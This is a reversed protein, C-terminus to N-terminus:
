DTLKLYSRIVEFVENDPYYIEKFYKEAELFKIRAEKSNERYLIQGQFFCINGMVSKDRAFKKELESLAMLVPLYDVEREYYAQIVRNYVEPSSPNLMLINFVLQNQIPMKERIAIYLYDLLAEPNKPSLLLAKDIFLIATDTKHQLDYAYSVLRLADVKPSTEEYLNHSVMAYDIALSYNRLIYEVYALNYYAPPYKSNLSISKRLMRQAEDYKGQGILIYGLVFYTEFDASNNEICKRNVQELKSTLVDKSISMNDDYHLFYDYLYDAQAKYLFGKEPYLQIFSDLIVDANLAYLQYEGSRNRLESIKQGPSLNIFGFKEFQLHVVYFHIALNLKILFLELDKNKPDVKEILQYADLIRGALVLSDSKQLIFSKDVQASLSKLSCFIIFSVVILRKLNM